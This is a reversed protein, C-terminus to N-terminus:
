CCKKYPRYVMKAPILVKNEGLLQDLSKFGCQVSEVKSKLDKMSECNDRFWLYHVSSVFDDSWKFTLFNKSKTLTTDLVKFM